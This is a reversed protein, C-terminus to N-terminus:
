TNTPNMHVIEIDSNIIGDLDYKMVKHTEKDTLILMKKKAKIMELYKCACVIRPFRTNGHAKKTHKYSKVEGIISKDESVLDFEHKILEGTSRKGVVLTRDSRRTYFKKRFKKEFKNRIMREVVFGNPAAKPNIQEVSKNIDYHELVM